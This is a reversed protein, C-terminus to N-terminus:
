EANLRQPAPDAATRYYGTARFKPLFLGGQDRDLGTPPAVQIREWKPLKKKTAAQYMELMAHGYTNSRLGLDVKAFTADARDHLASLGAGALVKALDGRNTQKAYRYWYGYAGELIMETLANPDDPYAETLLGLVWTLADDGGRRYIHEIRAVAKIEGTHYSGSAITLGFRSLIKVITHADQDGAAIKSQFRTAPTQAFVTGLKTYLDAERPRDIGTFVMAPLQTLGMEYAIVRRHNGDVVYLDGQNRRSIILPGCAMPDWEKRLRALRGQSLPRAYGNGHPPAYDVNLAAVYVRELRYKPMEVPHREAFRRVEEADALEDTNDPLSTLPFDSGGYLHHSELCAEDLM